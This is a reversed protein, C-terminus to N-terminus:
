EPDEGEIRDGRCSGPNSGDLDDILMELGLPVRFQSSLDGRLIGSDGVFGNLRLEDDEM